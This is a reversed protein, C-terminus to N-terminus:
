LLCNPDFQFSRQSLSRHFPGHLNLFCITAWVVFVLMFIHFSIGDSVECDSDGTLNILLLCGGSIVAPLDPLCDAGVVTKGAESLRHNFPQPPYPLFVEKGVFTRPVTSLGHSPCFLTSTQTHISYPCPCILSQASARHPSIYGLRRAAGGM